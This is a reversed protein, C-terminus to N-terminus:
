WTFEFGASVMLGQPLTEGDIQTTHMSTAVDITLFKFATIGASLYRLETGALNQRYGIRLAPVWRSNTALAGSVTLWQYRDGLPDTAPDADLGLHTSWRRSASFLSAELKLQRDMRYTRDRQLARIITESEYPGLDVSPFLFEPENLNTIQAGLQYNEGVWVAGVDFGIGEDSQYEATRITDFLEESDTIDGFRVSLRSLKKVYMHAEAGLYLTGREGSWGERSYGVNFDFTRTSKSLLSSDNKVAMFVAADTPTLELDESIPLQAPRNIPLTNLWDELAERAAEPDFDIAEVIGVAKANGSWNVGFVWTGAREAKGLVFSGHGVQWARAYGEDRIFALLATQRAVETAVASITEGVDPDLMDLIDGINIGDDPKDPDQGPGGGGNGPDTPKYAGTLRDYLAFLNDVNGYELGAAGAFGAINLPRDDHRASEAAGAAPNSSASQVRLGHTVDGLTLNAGPPQYITEAVVPAVSLALASGILTIARLLNM